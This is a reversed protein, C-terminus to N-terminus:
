WTYPIVFSPLSYTQKMVWNQIAVLKLFEEDTIPGQTSKLARKLIERPSGSEEQENDLSNSDSDLIFNRIKTTIPAGFQEMRPKSRMDEYIDVIKDFMVGEITQPVSDSRHNCRCKKRQFQHHM